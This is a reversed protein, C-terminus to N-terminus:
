DNKQTQKINKTLPFFQLNLRYVIETEDSEEVVAAVRRRFDVIEDLIKEYDKQAIGMTLGSFSRESLPLEELARMAFDGMQRHMSRVAEPVVDMPGTSVTKDTQHYLGDKDKVLLGRKTLFDLVEVVQAASIEMLCQDAIESPKAHPMVPALERIVPNKWTGFYTYFDGGLVNVKQANGLAIMEEFARKRKEFTKANGYEVMLLFYHNEFEGLKMAQATKQAGEATLRTKGDCVLKLYGSSSFGAEKAFDRWTFSSKHKKEIYYDQIYLRYDQYQSIPKM